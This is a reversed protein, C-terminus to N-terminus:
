RKAGSKKRIPVKFTSEALDIMTNYAEARMKEHRLQEELEEIRARLVNVDDTSGSLGEQLTSQPQGKATNKSMETSENLGNAEAFKAIWRYLMSRSIPIQRIIQTAGVGRHFYLDMAIDFYQEAKNTRCFYM